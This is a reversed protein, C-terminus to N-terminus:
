THADPPSVIALLDRVWDQTWDAVTDRWERRSFTHDAAPLDRRTVRPSACLQRWSISREIADEFERATLDQGSVILLINGRYHRLEAAMREALPNLARGDPGPRSRGFVEALNGLLDRCSRIPNVKGRLVKRLFDRQALRAIYYHRLQARAHSESTRVWPNVLVVGGVRPDRQARICIALTADCLGWLVVTRLSPLEHMMTDIAAAVDPEISEFGHFEGDSDGMGRCDFRFAAIGQLALSRALLIFQRHSGVRYQPGGVVIVVGGKPPSAPRHLVGVLTDGHCIFTLPVEDTSREPVSRDNAAPFPSPKM